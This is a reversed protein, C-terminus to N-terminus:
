PQLTFYAEQPVPIPSRAIAVPGLQCQANALLTQAARLRGVLRM